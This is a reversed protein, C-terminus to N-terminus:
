MWRCSILEVYQVPPCYRTGLLGYTIPKEYCICCLHDEEENAPLAVVEEPRGNSTSPIVHQFWCQDGRRCYGAAYFKCTKNRDFPTLKESEGHLFKCNNGAFCGRSTNSRSFM